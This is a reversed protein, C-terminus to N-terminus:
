PPRFPRGLLPTAALAFRTVSTAGAALLTGAAGALTEGTTVVDDVLLVRRGAVPAARIVRFREAGASRRAARGLRSQAPKWLDRRGLALSTPLGLRAAIRRAMLEAQNFGRGLRRLPALPVPVVVDFVARGTFPERDLALDALAAALFELRRFKMALIAESLPPAYSWVALLHELGPPPADCVGCRSRRDGADPLPRLCGVCARRLDVREM